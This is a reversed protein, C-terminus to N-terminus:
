ETPPSRDALEPETWGAARRWAAAAAVASCLMNARRRCESSPEHIESGAELNYFVALARAEALTVAGHDSIVAGGIHSFYAPSM